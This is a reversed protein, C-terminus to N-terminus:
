VCRTSGSSAQPTTKPAPEPQPDAVMTFTHLNNLRERGSRAIDESLLMLSTDDFVHYRGRELDEIGAALDRKIAATKIENVNRM